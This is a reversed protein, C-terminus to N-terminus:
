SNTPKTKIYDVPVGEDIAVRVVALPEVVALVALAHVLPRVAATVYPFKTVVLAAAM